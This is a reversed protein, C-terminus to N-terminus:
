QPRWKEADNRGQDEKMLAPDECVVRHAFGSPPSCSFSPAGGVVKSPGAAIGAGTWLLTLVAALILRSVMSAPHGTHAANSAAQLVISAVDGAGRGAVGDPDAALRHAVELAKAM